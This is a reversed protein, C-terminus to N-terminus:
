DISLSSTHILTFNKESYGVGYYYSRPSMVKIYGSYYDYSHNWYVKVQFIGGTTNLGALTYPGFTVVGTNSNISDNKENVF